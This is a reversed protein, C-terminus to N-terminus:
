DVSASNKIVNRYNVDESCSEDLKRNQIETHVYFSSTLHPVPILGREHFKIALRARHSERFSKNVLHSWKTGIQGCSM